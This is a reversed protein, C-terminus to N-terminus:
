PEARMTRSCSSRSAPLAARRGVVWRGIAEDEWEGQGGGFMRRGMIDAGSNQIARASSMTTLAGDRGRDQRPDRAVRRPATVWEHLLEGGEGLPSELSLNPGAVFGDLSTSIELKLNAM